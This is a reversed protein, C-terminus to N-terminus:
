MPLLDEGLPEEGWGDERLAEVATAGAAAPQPVTPRKSRAALHSDLSSGEYIGQTSPISSDKTFGTSDGAVTQQQQTATNTAAAAAQAAQSCCCELLAIAVVAFLNSINQVSGFALVLL